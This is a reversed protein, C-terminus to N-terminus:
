RNTQIRICGRLFASDGPWKAEKMRILPHIENFRVDQELMKSSHQIVKEKDLECHFYTFEVKKAIENIITNNCLAGKQSFNNVFVKMLDSLERMDALTTASEKQRISFRPMSPYKLPYYVPQESKICFHQPIMIIPLHKDLQYVHAYVRQLVSLPLADNDNAPAYGPVTGSAITFLWQITDTLFPSPKLLAEKQILSFLLTYFIYDKEFSFAESLLHGFYLKLPAWAANTNLNEIWVNSFYLLELRWLCHAEKSESIEKFLIGHEYLCKPTAHNIKLRRKLRTHNPMATINPLMLASRVGAQASLFINSMTILQSNKKYRNLAGNLAFFTGPLHMRIPITLKQSKLDLFYEMQKDLVMGLPLSEKGYGLDQIVENPFYVDLLRCLKGKETPLIAGKGAGLSAGYPYRAIYLPFENPPLNLNDVLETFIPNLKVVYRRIDQWYVKILSKGEEIRKTM